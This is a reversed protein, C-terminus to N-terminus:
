PTLPVLRYFRYRLNTRAPDVFNTLTTPMRNTRLAV